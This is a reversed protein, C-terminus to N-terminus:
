LNELVTVFSSSYRFSMLRHASKEETGTGPGERSYASRRGQSDSNGPVKRPSAGERGELLLGGGAISSSLGCREVGVIAILCLKYTQAKYGLPRM